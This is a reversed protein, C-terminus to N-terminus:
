TKSYSGSELREIKELLFLLEAADIYDLNPDSALEVERSGTLISQLKSVLLKGQAPIKPDKAVENLHKRVDEPPQKEMADKFLTCLRGGPNQGEGGNRRFSLYLQISQKRAQIRQKRIITLWNSRVCNTGPEGHNLMM